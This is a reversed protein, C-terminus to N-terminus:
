KGQLLPVLHMVFLLPLIILIQELSLHKCLGRLSGQEDMGTVCIIGMTIRM